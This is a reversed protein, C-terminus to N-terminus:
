IIRTNINYLLYYFTIASDWDDYNSHSFNIFTKGVTKRYDMWNVIRAVMETDNALSEVAKLKEIRIMTNYKNIIEKVKKTMRVNTM